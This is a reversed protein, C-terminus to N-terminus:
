TRLTLRPQAQVWTTPCSLAWLRSTLRSRKICRSGDPSTLMPALKRAKPIGLISVRCYGRLRRLLLISDVCFIHRHAQCVALRFSRPLTLGSIQKAEVCSWDIRFIEFAHWDIQGAISLSLFNILLKHHFMSTKDLYNWTHRKPLLWVPFDVLYGIRSSISQEPVTISM